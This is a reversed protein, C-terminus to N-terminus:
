LRFQTKMSDEATRLADQVWDSLVAGNLHTGKGGCGWGGSHTEGGGRDGFSGWHGRYM